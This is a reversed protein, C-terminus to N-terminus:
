KLLSNNSKDYRQGVTQAHRETSELSWRKSYLLPTSRRVKAGIGSGARELESDPSNSMWWTSVRLPREQAMPLDVMFLALSNMIYLNWGERDSNKQECADPIWEVALSITLNPVARHNTDV